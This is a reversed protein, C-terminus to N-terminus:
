VAGEWPHGAGVVPSIQYISIEYSSQPSGWDTIQDANSYEVTLAGDVPELTRVVETRGANWILVRFRITCCRQRVPAVIPSLMRVPTRTRRIWYFHCSGGSRRHVFDFEPSFPKMTDLQVLREQADTVDEPEFGPAAAVYLRRLAYTNYGIPVFEISSPPTLLLFQEDEAHLDIWRETNRRGRILRSLKYTRGGATTVGLLTANSFSIIENGILMLNKRGAAVDEDDESSLEVDSREITVEIETVTDWFRGCVGNGTPVTGNVNGGIAEGQLTKFPHWTTGGDHSQFITGGSFSAEGTSSVGCYVGPQEVHQAQLAPIDAVFCRLSPPNPINTPNHDLDVM